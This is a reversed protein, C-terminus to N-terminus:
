VRRVCFGLICVIYPCQILMMLTSLVVVMMGLIPQNHIWHETCGHRRPTPVSTQAYFYTYSAMCSDVDGAM